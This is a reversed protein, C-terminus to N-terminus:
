EAGWNTMAPGVRLTSVRGDVSLVASNCPTFARTAGVATRNLFELQLLVASRSPIITM